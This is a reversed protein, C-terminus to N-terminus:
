SVHRTKYCILLNISCSTCYTHSQLITPTFLASQLLSSSRLPLNSPLSTKLLFQQPTPQFPGSMHFSDSVFFQCLPCIGLFHPPFPSLSFIRHSSQTLLSRSLTPPSHLVVAFSLLQLSTISFTPLSFHSSSLFSLSFNVAVMALRVGSSLSLSLLGVHLRIVKCPILHQWDSITSVSTQAHLCWYDQKVSQRDAASSRGSSLRAVNAPKQKTDAHDICHQWRVSM